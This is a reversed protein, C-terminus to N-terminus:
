LPPIRQIASQYLSQLSYAILLGLNLIVFLGNKFTGEFLAILLFPLQTAWAVKQAQSLWSGDFPRDISRLIQQTWQMDLKFYPSINTAM